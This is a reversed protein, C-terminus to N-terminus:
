PDRTPLPGPDRNGYTLIWLADILPQELSFVTDLERLGAFQQTGGLRETLFLALRSTQEAGASAPVAFTAELLFKWPRLEGAASVQETFGGAAFERARLTRLAALVGALAQPDRAPSAPEGAPNFTTEYIPKKAELDILKFAGIRASAPLPAALNRDRWATPVAALEELVERPVQYISTGAEAATGVRAYVNRSADTGLRLVVPESAGALALSIERAPRNFGWGELDASTPADSMFKEASLAALQTLLRQVAGPDAPLTRPGSGTEGRRVIQWDRATDPAAGAPADVLRKLEFPPLNPQVPSSIAVATVGASDFELVRKERLSEQATRLTNMLTAPVAVTFLARRGELQAHYEVPAPAATAAPRPTAPPAVPEGLFLTEVRNNGELAIRMRPAASPAPAVPTAPFASARLANLESIALELATRSARASIPADFTWRTGDRRIRVRVGAAGPDAVGAAMQVSLSRAEFVRVIFLSDSRLQELPVSLSEALTRNVVHIRTGDPSLVYLRRGDPTADGIRLTTLPLAADSGAAPDGSAFTVTLKPKDLSFDALTQNNRALDAVAFSTEHELLQLAHLIASVAHPNAPWRDLPKTLFWSDRERVLSFSGAAGAVAVELSRINAAEPGLVRRRAERSAAETRWTREFKFIFFFLAVNLFILVLTVKTRM